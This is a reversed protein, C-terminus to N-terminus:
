KAPSITITVETHVDRKGSRKISNTHPPDIKDVAFSHDSQYSIQFGAGIQAVHVPEDQALMAMTAQLQKAAPGFSAWQAATNLSLSGMSGAILAGQAVAAQSSDVTTDHSKMTGKGGGDKWQPDIVVTGLDTKRTYDLGFHVNSMDLDAHATATSEDNDKCGTTHSAAQFDYSGGGDLPKGKSGLSDNPSSIQAEGDDSMPFSKSSFHVQVTLSTDSTTTKNCTAPVVGEDKRHESMTRKYVVDISVFKQAVAATPLLLTVVVLTRSFM